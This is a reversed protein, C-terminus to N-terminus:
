GGRWRRPRIMAHQHHAAAADAEVHHLAGLEGARAGDDGAVQEVVLQSDGALEAGGVGDVGLGLVHHLAHLLQGAAQAGVVGEIGDAALLRGHHDSSAM